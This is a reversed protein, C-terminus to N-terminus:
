GLCGKQPQRDTEQADRTLSEALRLGLASFYRRTVALALSNVSFRARLGLGGLRMQTQGAEVLNPRVANVQGDIAAM